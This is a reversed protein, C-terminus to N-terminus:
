YSKGLVLFKIRTTNRCRRMKRQKNRSFMIQASVFLSTWTKKKSATYNKLSPLIWIKLTCIHIHFRAGNVAASFIITHTNNGRLKYSSEWTHLTNSRTFLRDACIFLWRCTSDSECWRIGAAKSPKELDYSTNVRLKCTNAADSVESHMAEYHISTLLTTM